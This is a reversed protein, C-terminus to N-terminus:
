KHCKGTKNLIDINCFERLEQNFGDPPEHYPPMLIYTDFALSVRPFLGDYIPVGHKLFSPFITLGGKKNEINETMGQHEYYTHSGHSDLHMNGSLYGMEASCHRHLNIKDGSTMINYWSTYLLDFPVTQDAYIFDLYSQRIFNYMEKIEPCEDAWDEIHYRGFRTTTKTDDLGTQGDAMYPLSLVYEEKSLLFERITDIKNSESWQTIGVNFDWKPAYPSVSHQSKFRIIQV